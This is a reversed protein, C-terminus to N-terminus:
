LNNRNLDVNSEVRNQAATETPALMKDRMRKVLFQNFFVIVSALGILIVGFLVGLPLTNESLNNQQKYQSFSSGLWFTQILMFLAFYLLTAWMAWANRTTWLVVNALILLIVSSAWLFLWGNNAYYNYNTVVDAPKTASQLWTSAYYTLGAALIFCIGLVATYIKNWM